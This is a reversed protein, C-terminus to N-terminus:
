GADALWRSLTARAFAWDRKASALSRGSAVAVEEITLGAFLKLEAVRALVENNEALRALAEELDLLTDPDAHSLPLGEGLLREAERGGQRKRASRIRAHDILVQRMARAARLVFSRRAADDDVALALDESRFIKLWAEHVLATPQLTHHSREGQMLARAVRRLEAYLQLAAAAPLDASPM